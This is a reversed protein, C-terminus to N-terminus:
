GIHPLRKLAFPFEGAEVSALLRQHGGEVVRREGTFQTPLKDGAFRGGLGEGISLAIQELQQM